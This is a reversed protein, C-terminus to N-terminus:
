ARSGGPAGFRLLGRGKRKALHPLLKGSDDVYNVDAAVGVRGAAYAATVHPAAMSTGSMYGWGLVYKVGLHRDPPDYNPMSGLINVGPAIIGSIRDVDNSGVWVGVHNVLAPRHTAAGVSVVGAYRAPYLTMGQPHHNGAAAVVPIGKGLVADVAAEEYTAMPAEGGISLNVADFKYGAVTRLATEYLVADVPYYTKQDFTVPTNSTVKYSWVESGAPLLALLTSVVHTGHGQRDVYYNDFGRPVTRPPFQGEDVGTDLAAVKLSPGRAVYGIVELNWGTFYPEQMKGGSGGEGVGPDDVKERSSELPQVYRFPVKEAEVVLGTLERWMECISDLDAEAPAKGFVLLVRRLALLLEQAALSGIPAESPVAGPEIPFSAKLGARLCATLKGGFGGHPFAARYLAVLRVQLHPQARRDLSQIRLLEYQTDLAVLLRFFRRYRERSADPIVPTRAPIWGRRFTVVVQQPLYLPLQSM